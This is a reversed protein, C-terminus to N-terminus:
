HTWNVSLEEVCVCPRKGLVEALEFPEVGSRGSCACRIRGRLGKVASSAPVGDLKPRGRGIWLGIAM